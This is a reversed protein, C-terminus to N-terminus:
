KVYQELEQCMGDLQRGIDGLVRREFSAKRRNKVPVYLTRMIVFSLILYFSQEFISMETKTHLAYGLMLALIGFLCYVWGNCPKKNRVPEIFSLAAVKVLFLGTNNPKAEIFNKFWVGQVLIGQEWKATEEHLKATLLKADVWGKFAIQRKTESLIITKIGNWQANFQERLEMANRM